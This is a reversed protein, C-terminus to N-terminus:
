QVEPGKKKPVKKKWKEKYKRLDRWDQIHEILDRIHSHLTVLGMEQIEDDTLRLKYCKRLGKAKGVHIGYEKAIDVM